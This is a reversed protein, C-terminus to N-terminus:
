EERFTSDLSSTLPSLFYDIVTRKGLSIMAEVPMGPYLEDVQNEKLDQSDLSLTAAYFPESSGSDLILDASLTVVTADIAPVTGRGQSIALLNVVASQGVFIRDIDKPRVKVTAILEDGQPVIDLIAEGASVVGQETFFRSGVVTGAIPARVVTRRVVDRTAILREGLDALDKETAELGSTVETRNKNRVDIMELKTASIGQRAESAQGLLQAHTGKLQAIARKLALVRPKKELGKKFLIEVSDLEERIYGLQELVAQAQADVAKIREYFEAIRGDMANLRSQLSDRRAVFQKTQGVMIRRVSPDRGRALVEPSFTLRDANDFEARLRDRQALALYYQGEIIALGASAQTDDMTMLVQDKGVQDGDKVHIKKIIGGDKHQITRRHSKVTIVGGAPAASELTAVSAWGGFGGFWLGGIVLTAILYRRLKPGQRIEELRLSLTSAPPPLSKM